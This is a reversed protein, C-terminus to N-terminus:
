GQLFLADFRVPIPSGRGLAIVAQTVKISSSQTRQPSGTM